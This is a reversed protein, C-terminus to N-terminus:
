AGTHVSEQLDYVGEHLGKLVLKGDSTLEPKGGPNTAGEFFRPKWEM